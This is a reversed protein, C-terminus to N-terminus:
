EWNIVFAVFVSQSATFMDCSVCEVRLGKGGQNSLLDFTSTLPEFIGSDNKAAVGSCITQNVKLTFLLIHVNQLCTHRRGTTYWAAVKM